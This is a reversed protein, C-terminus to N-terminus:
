PNGKPDTSAMADINSHPNLTGVLPEVPGRAAEGDPLEHGQDDAPLIRSAVLLPLHRPGRMIMKGEVVVVKFRLREAAESCPRIDVEVSQEPRSTALGWTYYSGQVSAVNFEMLLGSQTAPAAAALWPKLDTETAAGPGVPAPPLLLTQCGGIFVVGAALFWRIM